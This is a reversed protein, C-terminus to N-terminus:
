EVVIHRMKLAHPYVFSMSKDLNADHSLNDDFVDAGVQDAQDNEDDHM